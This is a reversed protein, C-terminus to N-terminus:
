TEKIKIHGRTAALSIERGRRGALMAHMQATMGVEGKTGASAESAVLQKNGEDTELNNM